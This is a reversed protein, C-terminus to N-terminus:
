GISHETSASAVFQHSCCHRLLSLLCSGESSSVRYVHRGTQGGPGDVLVALELVVATLNNLVRSRRLCLQKIIRREVRVVLVLILVLPGDLLGKQM